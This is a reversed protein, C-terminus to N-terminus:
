AADAYHCEEPTKLALVKRPRRNLRRCIFDCQEQTIYRMSRWKPLYQRILGNTNESTGREWSHHPTAFYFRVGSAEEVEKYGHFECGNDSTITKIGYKQILPILHANVEQKTKNRIKIIVSYRTKRDVLTMVCSRGSYGHVLDIEFHGKETRKKAARPRKRIHRKGPLRGRSDRSRYRKRRLKPYQRLHLWLFGGEEKDAWIYRYISEWHIRLRGQEALKLSIQEPSWDLKLKALVLAWDAAQFYSNRRSKSRRYVAVQDAINPQYRGDSSRNRRIERDVTSRHRGIAKAIQAVTRGEVRLHSIIYRQNETVQQYKM